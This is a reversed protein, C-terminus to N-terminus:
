LKEIIFLRLQVKLMKKVAFNQDKQSCQERNMRIIFRYQQESYVCSYIQGNLKM